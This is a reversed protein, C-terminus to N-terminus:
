NANLKRCIFRAVNALSDLHEPITESEEVHITFTSELFEILELIGTSDLIGTQIFSDCEQLRIEKGFLFNEVIFSRVVAEITEESVMATTEM